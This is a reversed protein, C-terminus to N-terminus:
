LVFREINLVETQKAAIEAMIVDRATMNLNNNYSILLAGCLDMGYVLCM